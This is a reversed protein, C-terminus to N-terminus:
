PKRAKGPLRGGVRRSAVELVGVFQADEVGHVNAAQAARTADGCERQQRHQQQRHNRGDRAHQRPVGGGARGHGAVLVLRVVVGRGPLPRVGAMGIAVAEIGAAVAVEEAVARSCGQRNREDQNRNRVGHRRWGAVAAWGAERACPAGPWSTWRM